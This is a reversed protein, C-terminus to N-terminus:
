AEGKQAAAQAAAQMQAQYQLFGELKSYVNGVTTLENPEFAGRKISANLLNLVMALDQLDLSPAKAQEPARTTKVEAEGEVSQDVTKNKAM